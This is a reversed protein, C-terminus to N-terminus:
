SPRPTPSPSISTRYGRVRLPGGNRLVFRPAPPHASSLIGVLAAGLGVNGAATVNLLSGLGFVQSPLGLVVGPLSTATAVVGGAVSLGTAVIPAATAKVAGVTGMADGVVNFACGTVTGVAAVPLNVLGAGSAGGAIGGLGVNLGALVGVNADLATGLLGTPICLADGALGFATPVVISPLSKATTVASGAIGTVTGLSSGLPLNPLLGTVDSVGLTDVSVAAEGVNSSSVRVAMAPAMSGVALAAGAVVALRRYSRKSV